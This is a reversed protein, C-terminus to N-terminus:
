IPTVYMYLLGDPNAHEAYLTSMAQDTKPLDNNETHMYIHGLKYTKRVHQLFQLFTMRDVVLMKQSTKDNFTVKWSASYLFVPVHNPYHNIARQSLAKRDAFPTTEIFTNKPEYWLYVLYNCLVGWADALLNM